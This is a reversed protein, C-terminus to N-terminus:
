KCVGSSLYKWKKLEVLCVGDTNGNEDRGTKRFQRIDYKVSCVPHRYGLAAAQALFSPDGASTLLRGDSMKTCQVSLIPGARACSANVSATLLIIGFSTTWCIKM